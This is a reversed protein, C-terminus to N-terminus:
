ECCPLSIERKEKARLAKPGGIRRDLHFFTIKGRPNLPWLMFKGV